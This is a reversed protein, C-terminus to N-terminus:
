AMALALHSSVTSFGELQHYVPFSSQLMFDRRIGFAVKTM